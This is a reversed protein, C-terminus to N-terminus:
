KGGMELASHLYRKLVRAKFRLLAHARYIPPYTWRNLLRLQM